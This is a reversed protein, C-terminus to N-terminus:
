EGLAHVPIFIALDRPDRHHDYQRLLEIYRPKDLQWDYLQPTDLYSRLGITQTSLHAARMATRWSDIELQWTTPVSSAGATQTPRTGGM